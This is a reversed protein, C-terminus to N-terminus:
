VIIVSNGIALEAHPVEGHREFRSLERAGFARAYFDIAGAAHRMRLRPTATQRVAAPQTLTTAMTAKRELDSRLRAKFGERPLGRLEEAIRVLAALDEPTASDSRALLENLAQDLRDGRSPM